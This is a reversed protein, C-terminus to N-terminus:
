QYKLKLVSILAQGAELILIPDGSEKAQAYNAEAKQEAFVAINVVKDDVNAQSYNNFECLLYWSKVVNDWGINKYGRKRLEKKTISDLGEFTVSNRKQAERYNLGDLTRKKAM